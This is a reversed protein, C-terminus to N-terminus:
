YFFDRIRPMWYENSLVLVFTNASKINGKYNHKTLFFSIRLIEIM